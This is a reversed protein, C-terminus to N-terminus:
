IGAMRIKENDYVNIDEPFGLQIFVSDPIYRMGHKYSYAMLVRFKKECLDVEKLTPVQRITGIINHFVPVQKLMQDVM